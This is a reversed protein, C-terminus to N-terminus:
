QNDDNLKNDPIVYKVLNKNPDDLVSVKKFWNNFNKDELKIGTVIVEADSSTAFEKNEYAKEDFIQPLIDIIDGPLFRTCKGQWWLYCKIEDEQYEITYILMEYCSKVYINGARSSIFVYAIGWQM